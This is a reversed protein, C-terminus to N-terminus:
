LKANRDLDLQVLPRDRDGLLAYNFFFLMREVPSPTKDSKVSHDARYGLLMKVIEEKQARVAYHM